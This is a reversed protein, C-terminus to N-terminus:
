SDHPDGPLSLAGRLGFRQRAQEVDAEADPFHVAQFADAVGAFGRRARLEAPLPEPMNEVWPIVQEVWQRIRQAKLQETAPHVPVSSRRRERPHRQPLPDLVGGGAAGGEGSSLVRPGSSLLEYESVRFGRKDRSGTLLLRSGPTLKQAVWPQNFWTARISDSEDGVKVSLISLGRRRFNSPKAGMVEVQLTAKDGVEVEAVPVVTRDRHSHPFRLLLDGVTAIGAEAAAEALKPGVGDLTEISVELVSPRPWHVPAERLQAGTLESDGGFSRM